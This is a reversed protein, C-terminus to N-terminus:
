KLLTSALMTSLNRVASLTILFLQYVMVFWVLGDRLFVPENRPKIQTQLDSMFISINMEVILALSSKFSGNVCVHTEIIEHVSSKFSYQDHM